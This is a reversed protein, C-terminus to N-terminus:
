VSHEGIVGQRGNISINYIYIYIYHCPMAGNSFIRTWVTMTYLIGCRDWPTRNSRFTGRCGEVLRLGSNEEDKELFGPCCIFIFVIRRVPKERMEEVLMAAAEDSQKNM